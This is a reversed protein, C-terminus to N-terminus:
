ADEVFKRYGEMTMKETFGNIVHTRGAKGMSQRVGENDLLYLLEEALANPDGRPVLLGTKGDVVIEPVGGGLTGIVPVGCSQAELLVVGLPEAWLSPLVFVKTSAMYRAVDPVYDLFTVNEHLRKQRVYDKLTKLYNGRGIICCTFNRRTKIMSLAQVLVELGKYKEIRGVYLIDYAYDDSKKEPTFKQPDAGVYVVHIPTDTERQLTKKIYQSAVNIEKAKSLPKRAMFRWSGHSIPGPVHLLIKIKPLKPLSILETSEWYLAVDYKRHNKMLHYSLFLGFPISEINEPWIHNFTTLRLLKNVTTYQRAVPYTQLHGKITNLVEISQKLPKGKGAIISVEHGQSTLYLIVKRMLTEAGGVYYLFRASFTAIRMIFILGM